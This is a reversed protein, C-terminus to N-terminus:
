TTATSFPTAVTGGSTMNGSVEWVNASIDRFEFWDGQVGGQPNTGAAPMQLSHFNQSILAGWGSVVGAKQSIIVGQFNDGNSAALVKHSNSTVTASVIARVLGGSGSAAPLTLVSGAAASLLYTSGVAGVVSAGVAIPTSPNGGALAAVAGTTTQELVASPQGNNQLANVYLIETGVLAM